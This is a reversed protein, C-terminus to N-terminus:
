NNISRKESKFADENFKNLKIRLFAASAFYEVLLVMNAMILYTLDTNGYEFVLLGIFIVVTMLVVFVNRRKRQERDIEGLVM